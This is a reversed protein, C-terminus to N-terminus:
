ITTQRRLRRERWVILLGGGAILFAGPFLEAWPTEDFFVWGFVFAIPIGFYSFPALNSQETMRFSAVLLLVATGGFAGMGLIWAIDVMDRLPTFGTTVGAFLLSGVCAVATSYLNILATPADEDMMRATVGTLAYCAAALLPLLAAPTFSDRGPGVVMIVGVFGVIVAAWRVWGVKEKLLFVALAVMFLANAYTITSATAFTLLGLSMYFSVQAVTLIVGRFGALRWQRLKWPKGQRRWEASAYLVLFSPILGFFNRYGSLEAASYGDSLSKIILAMADFLVLALLSYVIALTTRNMAIQAIQSEPLATATDRSKHRARCRVVLLCGNGPTLTDSNM